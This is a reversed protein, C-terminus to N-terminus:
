KPITIAYIHPDLKELSKDNTLMRSILQCLGACLQSEESDDLMFLDEIGVLDSVGASQDDQDGLPEGDKLLLDNFIAGEDQDGVVAEDADQNDGDKEEKDDMYVENRRLSAQSEPKSEGTTLERVVHPLRIRTIWIVLLLPLQLLFFAVIILGAVWELTATVAQTPWLTMIYTWYTIDRGLTTEMTQCVSRVVHNQRKAPYVAFQLQPPQQYVKCHPNELNLEGLMHAVKELIEGYVPQNNVQLLKHGKMVEPYYRRFRASVDHVKTNYIGHHANKDRNAEERDLDQEVFQTLILDADSSGPYLTLSLQKRAVNGETQHGNLRQVEDQHIFKLNGGIEGFLAMPEKWGRKFIVNRASKLVQIELEGASANYTHLRACDWGLPLNTVDSTFDIDVIPGASLTPSPLSFDTKCYWLYQGFPENLIMRVVFEVVRKKNLQLYGGQGQWTSAKRAQLTSGKGEPVISRRQDQKREREQQKLVAVIQAVLMDSHCYRHHYSKLLSHVPLHVSDETDRLCVIDAVATSFPDPVDTDINATLLQVQVFHEDLLLTIMINQQETFSDDQRQWQCSLAEVKLVTWSTANSIKEKWINVNEEDHCTLACTAVGLGDWAGFRIDYGTSTQKQRGSSTGATKEEEPETVIATYAKDPPTSPPLVKSDDPVPLDKALKAPDIRVLCSTGPVLAIALTVNGTGGNTLTSGKVLVRLLKELKQVGDEEDTTNDGRDEMLKVGCSLKQLSEGGFAAQVLQDRLSGKGHGGGWAQLLRQEVDRASTREGLGQLLVAIKASVVKQLVSHRATTAPLFNASSHLELRRDQVQKTDRMPNTTTFTRSQIGGVADKSTKFLSLRKPSKTRSSSQQKSDLAVPPDESAATPWGTCQVPSWQPLRDALSLLTHAFLDMDIHFAGFTRSVIPTTEFLDTVAGSSLVEWESPVSINPPNTRTEVVRLVVSNLQELQSASLLGSDQLSESLRALQGVEWGGMGCDDTTVPLVKLVRREKSLSEKSLSEKSLSEKSLCTETIQVAAYLHSGPPFTNNTFRLDSIASEQSLQYGKVSAPTESQGEDDDYVSLKLRTLSADFDQM